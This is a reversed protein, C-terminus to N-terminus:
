RELNRERVVLRIPNGQFGFEDRLRRELFRLWSVAPRGTAFLVFTPPATSAQTAYLIKVNRGRSRPIPTRQQAEMVLRNLIGTSVRLKRAALVPAIQDILRQVGRKTLASTRVLPAHALFHLRERMSDETLGAVYEDTILDWKNLAVIAGVGAEAVQQAIRQDQSVAGENADVVLIALDSRVIADRTRSSSFVEVGKTKARRRVGATDVFRYTVGGITAITDVSDRTTGPDPHVISRDEGTLRNFLSSKGVNPRGVLAISAIGTGEEAPTAAPLMDVIRDLLDGSGRGHLASVAAPEGLGFSYFEHLAEEGAADDVKNAVVIVPASMKRLGKVLALDDATVGAPAEVVFLVLDASRVAEMAKAAVKGTITKDEQHASAVLGGTDALIFERGRWRTTRDLRDRTLGAVPAM